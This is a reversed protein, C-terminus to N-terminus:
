ENVEVGEKNEFDFDAEVRVDERYDCEMNLGFM